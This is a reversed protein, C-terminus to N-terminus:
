HTQGLESLATSLAMDLRVGYHSREDGSRVPLMAGGQVNYMGTDTQTHTHTHTNRAPGLAWQAPIHVSSDVCARQLAASTDFRQESIPYRQTMHHSPTWKVGEATVKELTSSVQYLM